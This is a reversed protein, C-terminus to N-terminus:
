ARAGGTKACAALFGVLEEVCNRGTFKVRAEKETFSVGKGLAIYSAAYAPLEKVSPFTLQAANGRIVARSAGARAALTKILGVRTLNVVSPPPAGYIDALDALLAARESESGLKAIRAYLRM